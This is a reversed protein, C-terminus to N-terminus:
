NRTAVQSFHGVKCQSTSRMFQSFDVAGKDPVIVVSLTLSFNKPHTPTPDLRVQEQTGDPGNTEYDLLSLINIIM